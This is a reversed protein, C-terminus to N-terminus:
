ESDSDTILRSILSPDFDFIVFTEIHVLAVMWACVHQICDVCRIFVLFVYQLIKRNLNGKSTYCYSSGITAM